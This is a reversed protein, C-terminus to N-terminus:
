PVLVTAADWEADTGELDANNRAIAREAYCEDETTRIQDHDIACVLATLHNSGDVIVVRLGNTLRFVPKVAGNDLRTWGMVTWEGAADTHMRNAYYRAQATYGRLTAITTLANM